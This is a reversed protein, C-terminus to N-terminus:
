TVALHAWTSRLGSWSTLPYLSQGAKNGIVYVRLWNKIGVQFSLYSSLHRRHSHALLCRSRASTRQPPRRRACSDTPRPPPTALVWSAPPAAPAPLSAPHAIPSWEVRM